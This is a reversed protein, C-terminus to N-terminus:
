KGYERSYTKKAAHTAMKKLEAKVRRATEGRWTNANALFYLVVSEASDCFYNEDISGLTEMAELYPVAGFYVKKWDKRVEAAIESLPRVTGTVTEM